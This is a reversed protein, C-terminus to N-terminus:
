IKKDDRQIRQRYKARKIEERRISSKKEFNKRSRLEKLQGTKDVKQRYEKLIGEIKKGESKIIIM